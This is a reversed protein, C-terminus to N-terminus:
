SLFPLGTFLLVLLTISIILMTIWVTASWKIIKTGDLPGLPLLNFTALILNIMIIFNLISAIQLSEFFVFLYLPLIIIAIIINALPGAMAIKGTEYDRSGGLFMVAGPAAFVFGTFSLILAILLGMPFMRYEAWLGYKQAMFKHSMEHFFFATAIGLFSLLLYYPFEEFKFNGSLITDKPLAIAFAFTLVIMSILIHTIEVRSFKGPKVPDITAKPFYMYERPSLDHFSPYIKKDEVM